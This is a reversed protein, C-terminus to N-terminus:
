SNVEMINTNGKSLNGLMDNKYIQMAAKTRVDISLYISKPVQIFQSHKGKFFYWKGKVEEMNQFVYIYRKQSKEFM